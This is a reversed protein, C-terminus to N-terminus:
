PLEHIVLRGVFLPEEELLTEIDLSLFAINGRLRPPSGKSLDIFCGRSKLFRSTVNDSSKANSELHLVVEFRGEISNLEDEGFIQTTPLDYTKALYSRQEVSSVIAYVSAGLSKALQIAVQGVVTGASQILISQPTPIILHLGIWTEPIM